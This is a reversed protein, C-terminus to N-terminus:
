RQQSLVSMVLATSSLAVMCGFYIQEHFSWGLAWAFAPGLFGTLLIQLGGGILAIKKVSELKSFSLELGISFLLCAVGIEAITELDQHNSILHFGYPGIILGTLIFAVLPPLKFRYALIVTPVAALFVAFLEPLFSDQM